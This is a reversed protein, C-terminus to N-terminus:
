ANHRAQTLLEVGRAFREVGEWEAYAEPVVIEMDPNQRKHKVAASFDRLYALQRQIDTRDGVRGHGPVYQGAPLTLIKELITIWEDPNGHGVWPHLEGQFLLDATLVIGEDPLLLFADSVTHGGGYTILEARRTSGHLELRDTFTLTPLTIKLLHIGTIEERLKEVEARFLEVDSPPDNQLHDLKAALMHRYDEVQTVLPGMAQRTKTTAIIQTTPAFCQNGLVHDRHHHSNIVWTPERGTLAVAVDRLVQGAEPSVFTDFVVTKDGLDVIATNGKGKEMDTALCAFVGDVVKEVQFYSNDSVIVM